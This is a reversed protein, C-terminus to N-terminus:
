AAEPQKIGDRALLGACDGEPVAADHLMGCYGPEDHMDCNKCCTGDKAWYEAVMDLYGTMTVRQLPTSQSPKV